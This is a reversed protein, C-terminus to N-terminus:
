GIVDTAIRRHKLTWHLNIAQARAAYSIINTPPRSNDRRRHLDVAIVIDAGMDRVLAAPVNNALCGDVLLRGELKVPRNIVPRACSARIAEVTDGTTFVVDPDSIM